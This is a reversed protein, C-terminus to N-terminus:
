KVARIRREVEAAAGAIERDARQGALEDEVIEWRLRLMSMPTLGLRDELQRVEGLLGATADKKESAVVFRCYRAVTRNWGLREWAVAQPCAWLEAWVTQEIKTPRSLPWEPPTGQRGESPLRVTQPVVNRRRRNAEPKPPPGPM